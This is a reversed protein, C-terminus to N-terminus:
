DGAVIRYIGGGGIDAVYLEGEPGEGFTSVNLGTELLVRPGVVGEIDSRVGFLLGSCYDSFLYWGRLRPIADGRYVFRGTVSFGADRGYEVVPLTLGESSCNAGAYCQSAEM